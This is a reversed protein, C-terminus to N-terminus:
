MAVPVGKEHWAKLITAEREPTIPFAMKKKDDDSLTRYWDLVFRITETAPRYTLGAAVAKDSNIYTQGYPEGKENRKPPIWPIASTLRNARLFDMDSIWTLTQQKPVATVLANQFREMTMHDDGAANYTGTKGTEILHIMFATLDRVDAFQVHDDKAGPVLIEGGRDHRAPWYNFRPTPDGAGIIFNPRVNIARDGFVKTNEIESLAKRVGYSATGDTTGPDILVPKIDEHINPTLYPLFVGTSSVYLYYKVSDKLLEATKTVWAPDTQSNDIAADWKKGKLSNLDLKEISRDGQLFIVGKPLDAQSIGRNFVTIRHGREMAARVQYPGIYGTGGLILIDLPKSARGPQSTNSQAHPVARDLLLAAGTAGAVKLFSRRTPM